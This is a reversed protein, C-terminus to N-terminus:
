KEAGKRYEHTYKRCPYLTKLFFVRGEEVCPAVWIYGKRDFLLLIQGPRTPHEWSTVYEWEHVEEFSVGRHLKLWESKRRSWKYEM